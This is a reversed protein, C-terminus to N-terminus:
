NILSNAVHATATVVAAHPPPGVRGDVLSCTKLM